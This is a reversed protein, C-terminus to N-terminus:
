RSPDYYREQDDLRRVTLRIALDHFNQVIASGGPDCFYVAHMYYDEVAEETAESLVVQQRWNFSRWNPTETYVDKDFGLAIGGGEMNRQSNYGAFSNTISKGFRPLINVCSHFHGTVSGVLELGVNRAGPFRPLVIGQFVGWRKGRDGVPTTVPGTQWFTTTHQGATIGSGEIATATWNGGPAVYTITLAAAAATRKRYFLPTGIRDAKHM